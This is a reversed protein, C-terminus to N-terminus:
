YGKLWEVFSRGIVFIVAVLTPVGLAIGVSVIIWYVLIPGSPAYVGLACVYLPLLVTALWRDCIRNWRARDYAFRLDM